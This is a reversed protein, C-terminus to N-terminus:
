NEIETLWIKLYQGGGDPDLIEILAGEGVLSELSTTSAMDPVEGNYEVSLRQIKTDDSSNDILKVILTNAVDDPDGVVVELGDPNGFLREMHTNFSMIPETDGVEINLMMKALDDAQLNAEDAYVVLFMTSLLIIIIINIPLKM